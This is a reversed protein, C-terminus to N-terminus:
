KIHPSLIIPFEILYITKHWLELHFQVYCRQAKKLRLTFDGEKEKQWRSSEFVTERTGELRARDTVVLM